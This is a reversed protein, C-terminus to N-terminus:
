LLPTGADMWRQVAEREWNFETAIQAATCKRGYAWITAAIRRKLESPQEAVRRVSNAARRDLDRQIRREARSGSRM